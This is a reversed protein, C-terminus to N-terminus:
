VGEECIGKDGGALTELQDKIFKQRNDSMSMPPAVLRDWIESCESWRECCMCSNHADSCKEFMEEVEKWSDSIRLSPPQPTTNM